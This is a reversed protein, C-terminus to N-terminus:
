ALMSVRRYKKLQMAVSYLASFKDDYRHLLIFKALLFFNRFMYMTYLIRVYVISHTTFSLLYLPITFYTIFDHLRFSHCSKRVSFLVNCLTRSKLLCYTSKRYEYLFLYSAINQCKALRRVLIAMKVISGGFLM